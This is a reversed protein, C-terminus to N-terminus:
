FPWLEMKPAGFCATSKVMPHPVEQEENEDRAVNASFARLGQFDRNIAASSAWLPVGGGGQTALTPPPRSGVLALPAVLALAGLPTPRARGVAPQLERTASPKTLRCIGGGGGRLPSPPVVCLVGGRRSLCSERSSSSLGPRCPLASPDTVM